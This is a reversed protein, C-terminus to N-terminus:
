PSAKQEPKKTDLQEICLVNFWQCARSQKSPQELKKNVIKVESWPVMKVSNDNPNRILMGVTLSRLLQVSELNEHSSSLDYEGVTSRLDSHAASYGKGFVYIIVIPAFILILRNFRTRGFKDRLRENSLFWLIFILWVLCISTALGIGPDNPLVFYSLPGTLLLMVLLFTHPRQRFRRLKEPNSAGAVIEEESLGGEIRTTVMEYLVVGFVMMMSSPLWRLAATLYDSLSMMSLYDPAIVKFYTWEHVVSLVLTLGSILATVAPTNRLFTEM